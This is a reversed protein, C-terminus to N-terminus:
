LTLHVVLVGKVSTAFNWICMIKLVLMLSEFWFIFKITISVPYVCLNPYASNANDSAVSSGDIEMVTETEKKPEMEVDEDLKDLQGPTSLTM